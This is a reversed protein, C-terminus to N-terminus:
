IHILSLGYGETENNETMVVKSIVGESTIGMRLGIQDAFGKSSLDFVYGVADDGVTGEYVSKITGYDGILSMVDLAGFAEAAEVYGKRDLDEGELAPVAANPEM